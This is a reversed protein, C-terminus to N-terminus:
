FVFVRRGDYQSWRSVQRHNPHRKQVNTEQEQQQTKSTHQTTPPPNCPARASTHIRPRWFHSRHYSCKRRNNDQLYCYRSKIYIVQLNFFNLIHQALRTASLYRFSNHFTSHEKAKMKRFCGLNFKLCPEIKCFGFPYYTIPLFLNELFHRLM